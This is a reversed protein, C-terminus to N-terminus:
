GARPGIFLFHEVLNSFDDTWVTESPRVRTPEWRSDKSLEGLDADRAAMVAWTSPDKGLRAEDPSLNLDKRVRCVVGADRALAGLVPVLDIYRNSIHFAIIGGAALKSRYLQLAERTLLHTPIADSSFADSPRAARSRFVDFVQGIPGTRHYYTLPERRRGPDLSQQGHKTHGHILRHYNGSAVYTVRLVGFYNRHQYLVRGYHSTYTGSALLIAGLGLAFRVPRDKFAYCVVVALGFLVKVGLDERQSESHPQILKVLGWLLAGTAMPIALDLTRQWPKRTVSPM